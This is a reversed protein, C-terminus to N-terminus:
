PATMWRLTERKGMEANLVRYEDTLGALVTMIRSREAVVEFDDLEGVDCFQGPDDM